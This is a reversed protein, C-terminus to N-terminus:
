VSSVSALSDGSRPLVDSSTTYLLSQELDIIRQPLGSASVTAKGARTALITGGYGLIMGDTMVLKGGVFLHNARRREIDSIVIDADAGPALHGKELLGMMRSPAYSAKWILDALSIAGFEVLLLGHDLTVNLPFQGADSAFATVTFPGGPDKHTACILGVDAYSIPFAIGTNTGQARWFRLAEDGFAYRNEDANPLLVAVFGEAIARALGVETPEYGGIELSTRVIASDPVGDLCLGPDPSWRTLFSESVISDHNRALLEMARAAEHLRSPLIQGRLASNIHCLHLRRNPGAFGVAEELGLLNSGTETTGVHLAMYSRQKQSEEIIALTAEPTFPFHGGLIKTGIAGAALGAEVASAIEMGTPSASALATEPGSAFPNQGETPNPRLVQLSAISIGSGHRAVLDMVRSPPGAFDTAASVGARALMAFTAEGGVGLTSHMHHDILGPAVVYGRVDWTRSARVPDIEPAVEVIAGGEIAIDAVMDLENGPDIVRGNRLLLDYAM